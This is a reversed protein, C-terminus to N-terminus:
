NFYQALFEEFSGTQQEELIRKEQLSERVIQDFEAIELASLKKHKFYDKNKISLTLGLDEFSNYKSLLDDLMIASPLLEPHKIREKFYNLAQMYRKDETHRDLFAAIQNLDSFIDGAWVSLLIPQDTNLDQLLCGPKRGEFVVTQTNKSILSYDKATFEPSDKLLCYLLFVEMFYIQESNIGLPLYPNIDIARVELYEVGFQLLAQSQAQSKSATHKPRIAAYYEAEIQLLNANIQSDQGYKEFIAQYPPYPTNVANKLTQAYEKVSNFSINLKKQTSNHYGLDSMRLSCAYPAYLSNQKYPLLGAPRNHESLFSADVASSAGFLYDIIWGHRLFNRLLAFYNENITAQLGQGKGYLDNWIEWFSLPFSYNFHIGAITQMKKEYRHGLGIRYLTRFRGQHSTGYQAIPVDDQSPIVCPMSPSWLLEEGLHPYVYTHLKEMWTLLAKRNDIPPTIMELLSESYDTTIFPHTLAAGLVQPHPTQALYAADTVRLNEKEIGALTNNLLLSAASSEELKKLYNEITPRM